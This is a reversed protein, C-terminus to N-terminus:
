LGPSKAAGLIVGPRYPTGAQLLLMWGDSDASKLQDAPLTFSAAEGSWEGVRM